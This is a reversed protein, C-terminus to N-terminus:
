LLKALVGSTLDFLSLDSYLPAIILYGSVTMLSPRGLLNALMFPADLNLLVEFRVQEGYKQTLPKVPFVLYDVKHLDMLSTLQNFEASRQRCFETIRGGRKFRELTAPLLLRELESNAYHLSKYGESTGSFRCGDFRLLNSYFYINSIREYEEVIAPYYKKLDLRRKFFEVPLKDDSNLIIDAPYVLILNHEKLTCVSSLEAPLTTSDQPDYGRITNFVFLMQRLDRGILGITDLNNCLDIVGRRSIIGYSPKFGILGCLLAPIRCSGGSDTGVSVDASYDLISLASGTSSGGLYTQKLPNKLPRLTNYGLSGSAFEEMEVVKTLGLESNQEILNILHANQCPRFSSIIKSGADCVYDKMWINAKISVRIRNTNVINKKEM